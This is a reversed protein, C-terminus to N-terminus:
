DQSNCRLAAYKASFYCIGIKHDKIQSLRPDFGRDVASSALVRIISSVTSVQLYTSFM